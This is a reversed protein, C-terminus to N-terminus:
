LSNVYRIIKVWDGEKKTSLKNQKIFQNLEILKDGFHIELNNRAQFNFYTPNKGPSQLYVTTSAKESFRAPKGSHYSSEAVVPEHFSKQHKKLIKYKGDLITELYDQKKQGSEDDYNYFSFIRGEIEIQKIAFNNTILYLEGEKEFEFAGMYANYNAKTYEVTDTHFTIRSNAFNNFLYPHGDIENLSYTTTSGAKHFQIERAVKEYNKVNRGVNVRWQANLGYSCIIILSLLATKM